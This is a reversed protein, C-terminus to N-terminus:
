ISGFVDLYFSLVHLELLAIESIFPKVWKMITKEDADALNKLAIFTLYAEVVDFGHIATIAESRLQGDSLLREVLKRGVMGAAGIVLIKM